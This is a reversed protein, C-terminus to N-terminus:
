PCAPIFRRCEQGHLTIYLVCCFASTRLLAQLSALKLPQRMPAERSGVLPLPLPSPPPLPLLCHQQTSTICIAIALLGGFRKNFSICYNVIPNSYFHQTFDVPTGVAPSDPLWRWPTTRAWRCVSCRTCARCGGPSWGGWGRGGAGTCPQPTPQQQTAAMPGTGWARM